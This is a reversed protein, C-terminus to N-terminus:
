LKIEMISCSNLIGAICSARFCQGKVTKISIRVRNIIPSLSVSEHVRLKEIRHCPFKSLYDKKAKEKKLRLRLYPREGFATTMFQTYM